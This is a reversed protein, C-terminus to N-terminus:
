LRPWATLGYGISWQVGLILLKFAGGNSSEYFYIYIYVLCTYVMEHKVRYNYLRAGLEAFGSYLHSAPSDTFSLCGHGFPLCPHPTTNARPLLERALITKTEYVSIEHWIGIQVISAESDRFCPIGNNSTIQKMSFLDSGGARISVLLHIGGVFTRGM